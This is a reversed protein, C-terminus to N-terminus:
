ECAPLDVIQWESFDRPQPPPQRIRRTVRITCGDDRVQLNAYEHDWFEEYGREEDGFYLFSGNALILPDGPWLATVPGGVSDLQRHIERRKNWMGPPIPMPEDIMQGTRDIRVMILSRASLLFEDRGQLEVADLALGHPLELDPHELRRLTGDPARIALFAPGGVSRPRACILGHGIEPSIAVSKLPYGRGCATDYEYEALKPMVRCDASVETGLPSQTFAVPDSFRVTVTSRGREYLAVGDRICAFRPSAVEKEYSVGPTEAFKRLDESGFRTRALAEGTKSTLVQPLLYFWGDHITGIANAWLDDERVIGQAVVTGKEWPAVLREPEGQLVTAGITAAVGLALLGVIGRRGNM